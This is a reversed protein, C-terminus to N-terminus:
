GGGAVLVHGESRQVRWGIVLRGLGAQQDTLQYNGKALRESALSLFSLSLFHSLRRGTCSGRVRGSLVSVSGGGVERALGEGWGGGVVVVVVCVNHVRKHLRWAGRRNMSNSEQEKEKKKKVLPLAPHLRRTGDSTLRCQIKYCYLGAGVVERGLGFCVCVWGWGRGVAEIQGRGVSGILTRWGCNQTKKEQRLVMHNWLLSTVGEGKVGGVGGGWGFRLGWNSLFSFFFHFSLSCVSVNVQKIETM